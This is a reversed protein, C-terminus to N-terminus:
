IGRKNGYLEIQLRQSYNYGNKICIQALEAGKERLQNVTIGQPMLYINNNPICLIGQVEKIDVLDELGNYVFKIQYDNTNMYARITTLYHNNTTHMQYATSQKDKPNSCKTKPSISMFCNKLGKHYITGNTEITVYYGSDTLMGAISSVDHQITPEGGTIIVHKINNEKLEKLVEMINLEYGKEPNWSTYPTDCKTISNDKNKWECRLNCGNTRIFYSPTGVYKGEGQLSIFTEVVKM